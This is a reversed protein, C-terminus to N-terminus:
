DCCPSQWFDFTVFQTKARQVGGDDTALGDANGHGSFHIIGPRHDNLGRIITALDAAPSQHLAINDRYRSRRIEEGVKRVEADVRLSQERVPNAMLYLVDLHKNKKLTSRAVVAPKVVVTMGRVMPNRKTPTKKALAPKDAHQVIRKRHARVNPEKSYVFRSGDPVAGENDNREILGYRTLHDLQNQAQQAHSAKLSVEDMLQKKSRPKSARGYIANFLKRRIKNTGLHKGLQVCTEEYDGAWNVVATKAKM